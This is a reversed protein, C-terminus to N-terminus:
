VMNQTVTELAVTAASVHISSGHSRPAAHVAVTSKKVHLQVPFYSPCNQSQTYERVRTSEYERVRTSANM